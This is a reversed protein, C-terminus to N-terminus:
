MRLAMTITRARHALHAALMNRSSASIFKSVILHYEDSTATVWLEKNKEMHQEGWAKLREAWHPFMEKVLDLLTSMSDLNPLKTLTEEICGSLRRDDWRTCLANQIYRLPAIICIFCVGRCIMGAVIFKESLGCWVVCVLKNPNADARTDHLYTLYKKLRKVIECPLETYIHQRSSKLTPLPGDLELGKAECWAKYAGSEDLYYVGHDEFSSFLKWIARILERITTPDEHREGTLDVVKETLEKPTDSNDTGDYLEQLIDAEEKYCAESLLNTKHNTCKLIWCVEALTQEESTMKNKYAESEKLKQLRIKALDKSARVAGSANDTGLTKVKPLASAVNLGAAEAEAAKKM